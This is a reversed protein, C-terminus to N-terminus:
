EGMAKAVEMKLGEGRLDRAIITGDPGFLIIHPIGSIGYLDTPINQANIIQTWPLNHTKIAERTKDPKDWVAVGLLDFNKTKYKNYVEMLVPIEGICPGCWSAWFDVLVYKGKGIYSSFSVSTGDEQEITFDTFPKGVATNKIAENTKIIRQVKNQALAWEGAQATLEDVEESELVFAANELVFVGVADNNHAAFWKKYLEGFQPKIETNFLEMRHKAQEERDDTTKNFEEVRATFASRISKSEEDFALLEKNLPTTPSGWHTNFDAEIEGNELILNTYDRGASIRCFYATDAIGSFIFHDFEVVTSDIYKNDDYRMLYLTKGNFTSDPLVGKVVYSAPTQTCSFCGLLLAVQLLWLGRKM